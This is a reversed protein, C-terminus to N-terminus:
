GWGLGQSNEFVRWQQQILGGYHSKSIAINLDGKKFIRLNSLDAFDRKRLPYLQPRGIAICHGLPAAWGRSAGTSRLSREAWATTLTSRWDLTPSRHNKFKKPSPLGFRFFFLLCTTSKPLTLVVYHSLNPNNPYLVPDFCPYISAENFVKSAGLIACM